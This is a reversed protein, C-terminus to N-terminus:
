EAPVPGVVPISVVTDDRLYLKATGAQPPLDAVFRFTNMKGWSLTNAKWVMDGPLNSEDDEATEWRVYPDSLPFGVPPTVNWDAERVCYELSPCTFGTACDTDDGCYVGNVCINASGCTTNPDIVACQIDNVCIRGNVCQAM